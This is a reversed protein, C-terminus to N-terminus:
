CRGERARAEEMEWRRREREKNRAYLDQYITDFHSDGGQEYAHQFDSRMEWAHKVLWLQEERCGQEKMLRHLQSLQRSANGQAHALIWMIFELLKQDDM